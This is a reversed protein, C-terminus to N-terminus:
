NMGQEFPEAAKFTSFSTSLKKIPCAPTGGWLEMAPINKTVVASAAVISHCGITVGKLITAKSGIWANEKIEIPSVSFSDRSSADISHDQDRIVVMEAILCNNKIIIKQKAAIVCNRGIFSDSISITSEKDAKIHTGFSIHTNVITLSGGDVCIISCGREIKTKFDITIGPYLLKIRVTRFFYEMAQWRKFIYRLTKSILQM